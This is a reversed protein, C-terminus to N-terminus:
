RCIGGYVDRSPEPPPPVGSFVSVSSGKNKEDTSSDSQDNLQPSAMTTSADSRVPQDIMAKLAGDIHMPQVTKTTWESWM